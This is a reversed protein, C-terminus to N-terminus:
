DSEPRGADASSREARATMKQHDPLKSLSLDDAESLGAPHELLLGLRLAMLGSAWSCMCGSIELVRCTCRRGRRLEAVRRRGGEIVPLGSQGSTIKAPSLRPSDRIENRNDVAGFVAWVLASPPDTMVQIRLTKRRQGPATNVSWGLCARV